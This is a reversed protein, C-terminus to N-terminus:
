VYRKFGYRGVVCFFVIIARDMRGRASTLLDTPREGGATLRISQPIIVCGSVSAHEVCVWGVCVGGTCTLVANFFFCGKLRICYSLM